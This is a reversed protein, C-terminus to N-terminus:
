LGIITHYSPRKKGSRIKRPHSETLELLELRAMDKLMENFSGTNYLMRNYTYIYIVCIDEMALGLFAHIINGKMM